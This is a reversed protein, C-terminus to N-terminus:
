RGPISFRYTMGIGVYDNKFNKGDTSPGQTKGILARVALRDSLSYNLGVDAKVIPGHVNAGGMLEGFFQFRQDKQYETQLGIGTLVEGYGPYGLYAVYAISAHIPIYVNKNILNDLQLTLMNVPKRDINRYSSHYETQQYLNLRYGRFWGDDSEQSKGFGETRPQFHYSLSAGFTYNKSSGKPAALYGATASLSLNPSIAYEASLKPYILLGPGTDIKEPAYGGSGVGLHAHLNMRQSVPLRYGFGTIIQNYLPLGQYGIGLSAYWYADQTLYHAFQLDVLQFDSQYTGKPNIQSVNAIGVTLTSESSDERITRADAAPVKLGASAYPGTIYSFPVQVYVNLSTSDIASNKFKMRSVNAGVAFDTFDYGLGVSAKAFGGTGSLEISQLASKGGGGGGLSLTADGIINGWLKRQAKASVDFGMFGGYEGKVLPAYAGIGLYLSDSVQNYVHLGMLDLTANRPVKIVQYDFVVLGDVRSLTSSDPIAEAAKRPTDPITVQAIAETSNFGAVATVAFIFGSVKCGM